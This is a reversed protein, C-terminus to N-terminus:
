PTTDFRDYRARNSITYGHVRSSPEFGEQEALFSGLFRVSKQTRKQRLPNGVNERKDSINLEYYTPVAELDIM